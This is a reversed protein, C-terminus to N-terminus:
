RLFLAIIAMELGTLAVLMAGLRIMMRQELDRLGTELDAKTAMDRVDDKTALAGYGKSGVDILAKAQRESFGAGTLAEFAKHTDFVAM